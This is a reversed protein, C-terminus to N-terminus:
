IVNFFFFFSFFCCRHLAILHLAIFRPTDTILVSCRTSGAMGGCYIHLDLTSAPGATGGAGDPVREEREEAGWARQATNYQTFIYKEYLLAGLGVAGEECMLKYM